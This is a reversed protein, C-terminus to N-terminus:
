IVGYNVYDVGNVTTVATPHTAKVEDAMVGIHTEDDHLYKFKYVPLGNDLQGVREIDRKYRRDSLLAMLSVMLGAATAAGNSSSPTTSTTTGGLGAGPTVISAYKNLNSWAYNNPTDLLSM